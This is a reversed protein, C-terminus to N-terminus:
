INDLYPPFFSNVIEEHPKTVGLVTFVLYCFFLFIKFFFTTKCAPAFVLINTSHPACQSKAHSTREHAPLFLLDALDTLRIIDNHFSQKEWFVWSIIELIEARASKPFNWGACFLFRGQVNISKMVSSETNKCLRIIIKRVIM